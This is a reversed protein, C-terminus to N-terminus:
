IIRDSNLILEFTVNKSAALHEAMAASASSWDQKLAAALIITHEKVTDELRMDNAQGTLIRFRLAQDHICEYSQLLYRNGTARIVANHFEDDVQFAEQEDAMANLDSLKRYFYTLQESPIQAGYHLLAYPEYLMRVEFVRNIDGISMGSIVIGKKPLITILGEQELRGLADRIPTRSVHLESCLLEENLLTDPAYECNVIKRKIESYAQQKLSKKESM